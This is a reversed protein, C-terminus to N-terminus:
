RLPDTTEEAASGQDRPPQGGREIQEAREVRRRLDELGARGRDVLGLRDVAIVAVTPLVCVALVPLVLDTARPGVEALRGAGISGASLGALLQIGLALLLPYAVWAGWRERPELDRTQRVLLVAGLAVVAAPLLVLARVALPHEGPDPVAALLPLAPMVGTSSAGLTQLTGTGLTVSGGCLVVLAWVGLTPLLALQLLILVVGGVPGPALADTLAVVRPAAVLLLVAMTLMGLATLGAAGVALARAVAGVPTPLLAPTAPAARGDRRPRALALGIGALGGVVAVLAGSVVASLVVPRVLPHQAVSAIAGLLGAYVATYGTLAAGADRLAHPRLHGGEVLGLARGLRLLREASVALMVATLGFPTLTMAGDVVGTSVVLGGGHGLITAHIGLLLADLVTATSRSGAIQAALAPVVTLALVTAVAILASVAGQM